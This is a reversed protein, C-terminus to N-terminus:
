QVFQDLISIVENSEIDHYLHLIACTHGESLVKILFVVLWVTLYNEVKELLQDATELMNMLFSQNMAINFRGVDEDVFCSHLQLYTIKAKCLLAVEALMM